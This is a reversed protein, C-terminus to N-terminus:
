LRNVRRPPAFRTFGGNLRGTGYDGSAVTSVASGGGGGRGGLVDVQGMVQLVEDTLLRLVPRFM